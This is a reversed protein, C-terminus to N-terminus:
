LSLPLSRWNACSPSILVPQTELELHCNPCAGQATFLKCMEMNQGWQSSVRLSVWKQPKTSTLPHNTYTLNVKVLQVWATRNHPFASSCVERWEEGNLDVNGPSKEMCSCYVLCHVESDWCCWKILCLCTRGGWWEPQTKSQCHEPM